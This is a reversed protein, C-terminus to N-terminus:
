KLYNAFSLKFRKTLVKFFFFSFFLFLNTNTLCKNLVFMTNKSEIFLVHLDNKKCMEKGNIVFTGMEVNM